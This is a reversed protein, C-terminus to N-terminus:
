AQTCGLNPSCQCFEPAQPQMPVGTCLLRERQIQHEASALLYCLEAKMLLDTGSAQSLWLSILFIFCLLRSRPKYITLVTFTSLMHCFRVTTHTHAFICVALLDVHKIQKPCNLKM